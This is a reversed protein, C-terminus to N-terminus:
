FGGKMLREEERQQDLAKKRRTYTIFVTIAALAMSGFLAALAIVVSFFIGEAFGHGVALVVEPGEERSYFANIQYIGPREVRFTAISRGTRGGFSYTFGGPTPYTSLERGTAKESVQIQLGPIQAGTGYFKGNIYTHNEYFITYEGPEKLALDSSGPVVVQSLESGMDSFGSYLVWAFISFGVFIILIALGFYWPSPFVNSGNM